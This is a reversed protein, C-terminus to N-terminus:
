LNLKRNIQRLYWKAHQIDTTKLAQEVLTQVDPLQHPEYNVEMMRLTQAVSEDRERDARKRREARVSLIYWCIFFGVCVGCLFDGFGMM